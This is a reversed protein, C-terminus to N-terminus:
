NTFKITSLIKKYIEIDEKNGNTLSTLDIEITSVGGLDILSHTECVANAKVPFNGKAITGAKLCYKNTVVDTNGFYDHKSDVIEYEKPMFDSISQKYAIMRLASIKDMKKTAEELREKSSAYVGPTVVLWTGPITYGKPEYYWNRPYEFRFHKIPDKYEIWGNALYNKYGFYGVVGIVAIILFILIPALGKQKM